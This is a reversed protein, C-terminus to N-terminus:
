RAAAGLPVEEQIYGLCVRVLHQIQEIHKSPDSGANM